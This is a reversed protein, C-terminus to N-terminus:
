LGRGAQAIRVGLVQRPCLHSHVAASHNLLEALAQM